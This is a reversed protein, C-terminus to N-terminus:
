YRRRNSNRRQPIQTQNQTPYIPQYRYLRDLESFASDMDAQLKAESVGYPLGGPWSKVINLTRRYEAILDRLTYTLQSYVIEINVRPEETTLTQSNPM